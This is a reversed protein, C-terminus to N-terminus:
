MYKYEIERKFLFFVCVCIMKYVDKKHRVQMKSKGFILFATVSSTFINLWYCRAYRFFFNTAVFFLYTKKERLSNTRGRKKFMSMQCHLMEGSIKKENSTTVGGGRSLVELGDQTGNTDLNVSRTDSGQDLSEFSLGNSLYTYFSKKKM